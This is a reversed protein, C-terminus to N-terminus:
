KSDYDEVKSAKHVQVHVKTKVERRKTYAGKSNDNKHFTGKNVKQASYGKCKGLLWLCIKLDTNTSM